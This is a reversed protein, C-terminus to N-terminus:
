QVNFEEFLIDRIRDYGDTFLTSNFHDQIERRLRNQGAAGRIDDMSVDSLYSLLWSKLQPNQEEILKEIDLKDSEKIQMTIHLRLYRNLRDSNLNVVIEGFSVFALKPNPEEIPKEEVEAAGGFMAPFLQPVAFGGAGFILGITSWIIAPLIGSSKKPGQETTAEAEAM